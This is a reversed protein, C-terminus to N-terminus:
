ELILKWPWSGGIAAICKGMEKKRSINKLLPFYQIRIYKFFDLIFVCIKQAWEVERREVIDLVGCPERYINFWDSSGVWIRMKPCM